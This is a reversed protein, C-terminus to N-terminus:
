VIGHHVKKHKQGKALLIYLPTKWIRRFLLERSSATALKWRKVSNPLTFREKGNGGDTQWKLALEITGQEAAGKDTSRPLEVIYLAL